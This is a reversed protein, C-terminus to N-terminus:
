GHKDFKKRQKRWREHDLRDQLNEIIARLDRIEGDKQDIIRYMGRVMKTLREIEEEMKEFEHPYGRQDEELAETLFEITQATGRKVECLPCKEGIYIIPEHFHDCIQDSM